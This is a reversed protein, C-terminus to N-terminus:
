ALPTWDVGESRIERLYKKIDDERTRKPRVLPAQVDRKGILICSADGMQTDVGDWFATTKM